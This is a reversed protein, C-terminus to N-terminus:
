PTAVGEGEPDAGLSRLVFLEGVETYEALREEAVTVGRMGRWGCGM